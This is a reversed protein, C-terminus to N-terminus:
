LWFLKQLIDNLQNIDWTIIIPSALAAVILLPLIVLIGLTQVLWNDLVSNKLRRVVVRRLLLGIILAILIILITLGIRSLTDMRYGGNVLILCSLCPTAAYPM